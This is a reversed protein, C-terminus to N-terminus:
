FPIRRKKLDRFDNINTDITITASVEREIYVMLSDTMFEDEIKNRLRTKVINM